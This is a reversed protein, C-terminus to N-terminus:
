YKCLNNVNQTVCMECNIQGRVPGRVTWWGGGLKARPVTTLRNAVTECKEESTNNRRVQLHHRCTGGFRRNINFGCSAVDRFVANKMSPDQTEQASPPASIGIYYSIIVFEVLAMRPLKWTSRLM